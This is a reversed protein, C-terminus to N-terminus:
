LKYQEEQGINEVRITYQENKVLDGSTNKTITGFYLSEIDGSESLFIYM